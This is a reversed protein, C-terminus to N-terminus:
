GGAADPGGAGPVALLPRSLGDPGADPEGRLGPDTRSAVFREALAVIEDVAADEGAATGAAPAPDSPGDRSSRQPPDLAIVKALTAALAGLARVEREEIGEGATGLRAEMAAVLRATTRQLSAVLAPIRPAADEGPTERPLAKDWQEDLARKRLARDTLGHRAAIVGIEERTNEYAFRIADWDITERAAM